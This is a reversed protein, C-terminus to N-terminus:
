LLLLYFPKFSDVDDVSFNEGVDGDLQIVVLSITDMLFTTNPVPSSVM